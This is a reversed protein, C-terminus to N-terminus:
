RSNLWDAVSWDITAKRSNRSAVIPLLSYTLHIDQGTIVGSRQSASKASSSMRSSIRGLTNFALARFIKLINGLRAVNGAGDRM